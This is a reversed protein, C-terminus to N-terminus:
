LLEEYVDDENNNWIKELSENAAETWYQNESQDDEKWFVMINTKWNPKGVPIDIIAHGNENTKISIQKTNM